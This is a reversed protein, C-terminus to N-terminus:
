KLYRGTRFAGNAGGARPGKVVRITATDDVYAQQEENVTRGTVRVTWKSRDLSDGAFDDFFLVRPEPAAQRTTHCGALLVLAAVLLRPRLIM